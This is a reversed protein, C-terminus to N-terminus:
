NLKSIYKLKFVVFKSKLDIQSNKFVRIENNCTFGLVVLIDFGRFQNGDNDKISSTFNRSSQGGVLFFTRLMIPGGM